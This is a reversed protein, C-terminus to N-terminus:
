AMWSSSALRPLVGIHRVLTRSCRYGEDGTLLETRERRRMAWHSQTRCKGRPAGHHRLGRQPAFHLPRTRWAHFYDHATRLRVHHRLRTASRGGQLEVCSTQRTLVHRLTASGDTTPQDTAPPSPRPRRVDTPELIAPGHYSVQAYQHCDCASCGADERNTHGLRLGGTTQKPSPRARLWSSIAFRCAAGFGLVWLGCGLVRNLTLHTPSLREPNVQNFRLVLATRPRRSWVDSCLGSTCTSATAEADAWTRNIGDEEGPEIEASVDV